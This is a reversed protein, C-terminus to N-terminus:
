VRQRRGWISWIDVSSSALKVGPYDFLPGVIVQLQIVPSTIVM